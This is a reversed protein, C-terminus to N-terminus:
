QSKTSTEIIEIRIDTDGERGELDLTEESVDGILKLKDFLEHIKNSVFKATLIDRDDFSETKIIKGELQVVAKEIEKVSAPIDLVKLHIHIGAEKKGALDKARPASPLAQRKVEDRAVAGASATDEDPAVRTLSKKEKLPEYQETADIDKSRDVYGYRQPEPKQAFTPQEAPQAPAPGAEQLATIKGERGPFLQKNEEPAPPIGKEEKLDAGKIKSQETRRSMESQAIIEEKEAPAKSFDSLTVSNIDPQVTKFIYFTSVAILITAVAEIPLKIHLPYFLKQLIWKKPKVEKRVRTMVKQTLWQPPVVDDLNRIYERTKELDALSEICKECSKLHKEILVKEKQSLIGESFASLKEQINSCKM